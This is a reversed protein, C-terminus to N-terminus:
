TTWAMAEAPEAEEWAAAPAFDGLDLRDAGPLDISAHTSLVVVGRRARHEELVRELRGLSAADLSVSPEDLLWLPAPAALLRALALRRREGASLLRAPLDALHDLGFAALAEGIRASRVAGPAKLRAWFALNEAATLVPKIADLHGVFHLRARHRDPDEDIPADDWALAGTMPALLGAMLRLLSSKGSGNPGTLVLASGSALSFDLGAFVIREGRRCALDRGAFIAM